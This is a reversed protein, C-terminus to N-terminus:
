KSCAGMVTLFRGLVRSASSIISSYSAKYAIEDPSDLLNTLVQATGEVFFGSTIGGM